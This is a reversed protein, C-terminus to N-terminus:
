RNPSRIIYYFVHGDLADVYCIYTQDDNPNYLMFRWAPRCEKVRTDDTSKQTYVLTVDLMKFLVEDTLEKSLIKAAEKLAIAEEAKGGIPTIDQNFECAFLEIEGAKSMFADNLEGDYDNGDSFASTMGMTIINDMPIGHYVPVLSFYYSETNEDIELIYVSVVKFSIDKNVNFLSNTFYDECVKVADKVKVKEGGSLTHEKEDDPTAYAKITLNSLPEWSEVSAETDIIQWTDSHRMQVYACNDHMWLVEQKVRDRNTEYSTYWFSSVDNITEDKIRQLYDSDYLCLYKLEEDENLHPSDVMDSAFLYNNKNKALESNPFETNIAEIFLDYVEAQSFERGVRSKRLTYMDGVNEPLFDMAESFDINDFSNERKLEALESKANNAAESASTTALANSTESSASIEGTQSDEPTKGCATLLVAASLLLLAFKHKM